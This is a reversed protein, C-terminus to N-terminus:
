RHYLATAGASFLSNLLYSTALTRAGLYREILWASYVLGPLNMYFFFNREFSIPNLFISQYNKQNLVNMESFVFSRHALRYNWSNWLYYVTISAGTLVLTLWPL